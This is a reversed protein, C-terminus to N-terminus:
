SANGEESKRPLRTKCAECWGLWGGVTEAGDSDQLQQRENGLVDVREGCLMVQSRASKTLHQRTGAYVIWLNENTVEVLLPPHTIGLPSYYVIWLNENTM